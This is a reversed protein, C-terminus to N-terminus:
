PRHGDSPAAALGRRFFESRGKETRPSNTMSRGAIEVVAHAHGGDREPDRGGRAERYELYAHALTALDRCERPDDLGFDAHEQVDADSVGLPYAAATRADGPFLTGEELRQSRPGVDACESPIMARVIPEHFSGREPYPTGPHRYLAVALPELHDEREEPFTSRDVKERREGGGFGREALTEARGVDLGRQALAAGEATSRQELLEAVVNERDVVRVIGVWGAHSRRERREGFDAPVAPALHRDQAFHSFEPAERLRLVLREAELKKAGAHSEGNPASSEDIVREIARGREADGDDM